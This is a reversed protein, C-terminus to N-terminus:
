RTPRFRERAATSPAVRSEGDTDGWRSQDLRSQGDTDGRLLSQDFRSQGDGGRLNERGPHLQHALRRVGGRGEEPLVTFLYPCPLM